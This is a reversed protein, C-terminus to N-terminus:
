ELVNPVQPGQHQYSNECGQEGLSLSAPNPVQPRLWGETATSNCGLVLVGIKTVKMNEIDGGTDVEM